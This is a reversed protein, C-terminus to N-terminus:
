SIYQNGSIYFDFDISLNLDALRKIHKDSLYPGGIMGNGNHFHIVAQIITQAQASLKRIGDIDKLLESILIDLKREFTDAKKDFEIMICSFDYHGTKSKRLDGKNWSKTIELHTLSELDASSHNESIAKFYISVGPEISIGIIKKNKSHIYFTLYFHEDTIPIYVEKKDKNEIINHIIIKGNQYVPAHIELIQETGGWEKHTLEHQILERIEQETM